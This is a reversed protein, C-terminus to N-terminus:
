KLFYMDRLFLLPKMLPFWNNFARIKTLIDAPNEIGNMHAFKIIGKAEAERTFYYSLIHSRFQLIGSPMITLNLVLFNDSFM